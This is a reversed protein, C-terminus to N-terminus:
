ALRGLLVLKAQGLLAHYARVTVGRGIREAVWAAKSEADGRQCYRARLAYGWEPESFVLAVVAREVAQVDKPVPDPATPYRPTRLDPRTERCPVPDVWAEALIGQQGAAAAMARRRGQGARALTLRDAKRGPAYEMARAIPHASAAAQYYAAGEDWGDVTPRDRIGYWCGWEVLLKDLDELKM